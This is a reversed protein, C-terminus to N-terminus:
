RHNPDLIHCFYSIGSNYAILLVNFRTLIGQKILTDLWDICETLLEGYHVFPVSLEVKVSMVVSIKLNVVEICTPM